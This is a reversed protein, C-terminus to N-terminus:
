KNARTVSPLPLLSEIYMAVQLNAKNLKQGRCYTLHELPEGKDNLKELTGRNNSGFIGGDRTICIPSFRNNPIGHTPIVISKTWSSHVKYEKMVWIETSAIIAQVSCCVSLCGGMVRLSYVEYKDSTLHDVLPIESFSRQRLDFALIVPVEKDLSFVLWHLAENLLSGARFEDGLHDYSVYIDDINWSNTKFSLIQFEGKCEDNEFEDSESGYLGILILLYDHSSSDYGFGYLFQSAIAYEFYPLRQCVDISPNWIILDRRRRYHLLVLGRCSGLIDLKQRFDAYYDYEGHLPPLPPPILFHVAGSCKKLPAEIDISEVYFDDSRLLLRHSPAAALDYHSIGFQSDSILSFWSKCVCKFRLVSRVPLRLLIERILELPLTPNKM